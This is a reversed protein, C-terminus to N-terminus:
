LLAFAKSYLRHTRKERIDTDSEEDSSADDEM